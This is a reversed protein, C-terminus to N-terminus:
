QRVPITFEAGESGTGSVEGEATLLRVNIKKAPRNFAGSSTTKVRLNRGELTAEFKTM